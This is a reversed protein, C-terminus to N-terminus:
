SARRNTTKRQFAIQLHRKTMDKPDTGAVRAFEADSMGLLDEDSYEKEEAPLEHDEIDRVMNAPVIGKVFEAMANPDQLLTMFLESYAESQMFNDTIEETKVFRKGDESREGVAARIIKKFAAIVEKGNEAAVIDQLYEIMDGGEHSLFMEALEAKTLNFYFDETVEEGDFNAFTITKKLM